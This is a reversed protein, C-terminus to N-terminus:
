QRIWASFDAGPPMERARPSILSRARKEAITGPGSLAGLRDLFEPLKGPLVLSLDLPLDPSLVKALKWVVSVCNATVTNYWAPQENLDNGLQLFSLFVAIQQDRTLSLPYLHVEEERPVARWQVIDAEDAAILSLEFQRFFGGLASFAEGKERRIEVSFTVPEEGQFRFSVLLHAIKPNGWSSTIMDAGDLRSLDVTRSTWAEDAEIASKWRFARINELHVLDGDVRGKVIRAVDPAWDRDQRPQLSFFWGSLVLMLVALGSWGWGPGLRAWAVLLVALGLVALAVPRAEPFQVWLAAAAWVTVLILVLWFVM